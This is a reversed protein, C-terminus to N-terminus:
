IDIFIYTFRSVDEVLHKTLYDFYLYLTIQPVKWYVFDLILYVIKRFQVFINVPLNFSCM